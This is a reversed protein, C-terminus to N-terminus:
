VHNGAQHPGVGSYHPETVAHEGVGFGAHEHRCVSPPDAQQQLVRQQERVEIDSGIHGERRAAAMGLSGPAFSAGGGRM